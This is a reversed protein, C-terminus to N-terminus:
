KGEGRARKSPKRHRSCSRVERNCFVCAKVLDGNDDVVNNQAGFVNSDCAPNNCSWQDSLKTLVFVDCSKNSWSVAGTGSEFVDRKFWGSGTLYGSIDTLTVIRGGVRMNAFLLGLYFDLCTSGEKQASRAGFVEQANNVFVVLGSQVADSVDHFLLHERMNEDRLLTEKCPVFAHSFDEARLDVLSSDPPDTRLSEVVGDRIAEAGFHRGKMVEVGRSPLGLALAAQLVQIGLGHGIDLFAKVKSGPLGVLRTNDERERKTKAKGGDSPPPKSASAAVTPKKEIHLDEKGELVDFVRWMGGISYRGYEAGTQNMGGGDVVCEKTMGNANGAKILGSKEIAEYGGNAEVFTDVAEEFEPRSLTRYTIASKYRDAENRARNSEEDLSRRLVEEIQAAEDVATSANSKHAPMKADEDSDSLLDVVEGSKGDSKSGWESKVARRPSAKMSEAMAWKMQDEESMPTGSESTCCGAEQHEPAPAGMGNGAGGFSSSSAAARSGDGGSLPASSPDRQRHVTSSADGDGGVKGVDM